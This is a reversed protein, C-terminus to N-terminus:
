VSAAAAAPRLAAVLAANVMVGAAAVCRTKETCGVPRVAPEIMVGATRTVACSAKSLVTGSKVPVTATAIPVLAPPAVSDPVPLAAATPPTAVKPSRLRSLAPM